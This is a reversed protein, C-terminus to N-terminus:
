SPSAHSIVNELPITIQADLAFTGSPQRDGGLHVVEHWKPSIKTLPQLLLVQDTQAVSAMGQNFRFSFFLFTFFVPYERSGQTPRKKNQKTKAPPDKVPPKEM